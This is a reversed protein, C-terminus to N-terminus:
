HNGALMRKFRGPHGPQVDDDVGLQDMALREAERFGEAWESYGDFMEAMTALLERLLDDYPRNHNM